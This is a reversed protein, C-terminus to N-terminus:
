ELLGDLHLASNLTLLKLRGNGIAVISIGGNNLQIERAKATPLDMVHAVYVRCVINHTVVVLNGSTSRILQDIAPVARDQVQQFSEGGAYPVTAPDSEFSAFYQPDRQRIDNWSLGEWDGVDCEVLSEIPQVPIAHPHAVIEATERARRLPSSYIGDIAHGELVRCTAQAQRRGVDSLALDTGQGQLVYPKRLNAETAGHRILYLRHCRQNM